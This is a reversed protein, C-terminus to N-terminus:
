RDQELADLVLEPVRQLISPIPRHFCPLQNPLVQPYHINLLFSYNIIANNANVGIAKVIIKITNKILGAFSTNGRAQNDEANIAKYKQSLSRLDTNDNETKPANLAKSIRIMM